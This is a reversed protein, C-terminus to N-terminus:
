QPPPVKGAGVRSTLRTHGAALSHPKGVVENVLKVTVVVVIFYCCRSRTRFRSSNVNMLAWNGAFSNPWFAIITFANLVDTGRGSLCEIVCLLGSMSSVSSMRCKNLTIQANNNGPTLSDLHLNLSSCLAHQCKNEWGSQANERLKM